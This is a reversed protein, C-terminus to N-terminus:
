VDYDDDEDQRQYALSQLKDLYRRDVIYFGAEIYIEYLMSAGLTAIRATNRMEKESPPTLQPNEIELCTFYTTIRRAIEEKIAGAGENCIKRAAAEVEPTVVNKRGLPRQPQESM